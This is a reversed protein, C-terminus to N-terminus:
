ARWKHHNELPLEYLASFPENVRFDFAGDKVIVSKFIIKLLQHRQEPKAREFTGKLDQVLDLTLLADDVFKGTNKELRALQSRIQALRDQYGKVKVRITQRDFVEELAEDLANEIKADLRKKEEELRKREEATTDRNESNTAKIMDRMWDFLDKPFKFRGLAEIFKQEVLEERYTKSHPCRNGRPHNSAYYSHGGAEYPTMRKGCVGCFLLGKALYFKGRQPHPRGKEALVEQVHDWLAKDIIAEHQGKILEGKHHDRKIYKSEEFPWVVYGLVVPSHLLASITNVGVKRGKRTRLGEAYLKEAVSFESETGTSYLEFARQVLPVEKDVLTLHSKKCEYGLPPNGSPYLGQDLRAEYTRRAKEQLDDIFLRSFAVRMSWFARKDGTTGKDIIEGTETFHISLFKRSLDDLDVMGRHDRTLRETNLVVLHAVSNERIFDVMAKFHRRHEPKYGSEVISWPEHALVFGHKDAYTQCHELQIPLSWKEGAQGATSVRCFIVCSNDDM